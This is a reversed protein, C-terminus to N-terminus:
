LASGTIVIDFSFTDVGSVPSDVSLTMVIERVEGPSLTSGDYDWSFQLYNSANVSSWNETSLILTVGDDGSNKVYITHSASNGVEIDGWIISSTMQTCASDSYVDIEISPEPPSYPPPSPPSFPPPPPPPPPQVILGSSSMRETSQLLGIASFGGIFILSLVVLAAIIQASKNM